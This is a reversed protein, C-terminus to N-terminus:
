IRWTAIARRGGAIYVGDVGNGSTVLREYVPAMNITSQYVAYDRNGTLTVARLTPTIFGALLLVGSLNGHVHCNEITVRSSYIRIAMTASNVVCGSLQVQSSARFHFGDWREGSAAATFTVPRSATGSVELRGYVDIDVGSLLQVEVGPQIILEGSFGIILDGQVVYPSSDVRWTV